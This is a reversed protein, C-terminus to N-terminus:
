GHIVEEKLYENFSKKQIQKLFESQVMSLDHQFTSNSLDADVNIVESDSKLMNKVILAFDYRSLREEGVIHMISAKYQDYSLILVTIIESLFAIPTPSFFVNGFLELKKGSKLGSKLWKFFVSEQGIVAASRIIKYDIMSKKLRNEAIWKTKGYNTGPNPIESDKYQGKQGDFVYDSSFFVVKSPLRNNEVTSIIIELPRVNLQYALNYDLNCQQVDKLGALLIIFEPQYHILYDVIQKEDTIDLAELDAKNEFPAKTGLIHYQNQISNALYPYLYSGIFGSAGIISLNPKKINM